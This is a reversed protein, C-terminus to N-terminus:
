LFALPLIATIGLGRWESCPPAFQAYGLDSLMGSLSAFCVAALYLVGISSVLPWMFGRRYLWMYLRGRGDWIGWTWLALVIFFLGLVVGHVESPLKARSWSLLSM